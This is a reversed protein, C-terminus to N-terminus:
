RKEDAGRWEGPSLGSVVVAGKEITEQLQPAREWLSSAEALDYVLPSLTAGFRRRFGLAYEDATEELECKAAADRAVFVVDVDSSDSQEGRAYSGFLVVSEAKGAFAQTLDGTLADPIEQEAAFVPEVMRQVFVNERVLWHVVARGASSSEVIGMSGLGGLADVVAPQSLGTRSAIQSANLPVRVGNLVRLVRVRSRNGMISEVSHTARM